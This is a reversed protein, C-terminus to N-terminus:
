YVYTIENVAQCAFGPVSNFSLTKEKLAFYKYYPSWVAEYFSSTPRNEYFTNDEIEISNIYSVLVATGKMGAANATFKNYKIHTAYKLVKYTINPNFTDNFTDYTTLPDDYYHKFDGTDSETKNREALELSSTVNLRQHKFNSDYVQCRHVAAGGNHKKPGVNALFNNEEIHVGAGCMNLHDKFDKELYVTHTFYLANGAFYAMNNVFENGYFYVYPLSNTINHAIAKNTDFDPAYIHVAGGLTGINEWFRNHKLIIPGRNSVILIPSIAEYMAAFEMDDFEDYANVFEQM